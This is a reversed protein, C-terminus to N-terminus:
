LEKKCIIQMYNAYKSHQLRHLPMNQAYKICIDAYEICIQHINICLKHMNICISHMNQAYILMNQAYIECIQQTSSPM